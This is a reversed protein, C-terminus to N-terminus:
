SQDKPPESSSLLRHARFFETCDRVGKMLHVRVTASALGLHAAIEQASFGDVYRLLMVERCREPLTEIASLMAEHRQAHDLLEAADPATELIALETADDIPDVRTRRARRIQDIAVNRAITFLIARTHALQQWDCHRLLRVYTEQLVDDHDPLSSFRRSLFARLAPEHPQVSEAFWLAQDPPSM